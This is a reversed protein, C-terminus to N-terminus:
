TWIADPLEKKLAHLNKKIYHHLSENWSTPQQNPNKLGSSWLYHLYDAPVDQLPTGKYKGFPMPTLDDYEKM